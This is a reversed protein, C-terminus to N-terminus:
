LILYELMIKLAIIIMVGRIAIEELEHIKRHIINSILDIANMMVIRIFFVLEDLSVEIFYKKIWDDAEQMRRSLNKDLSILIMLILIVNIVGESIIIIARAMLIAAAGNWVHSGGRDLLIDHFLRLIKNVHCFIVGNIISIFFLMHFIMKIKLSDDINIPTIEWNLMDDVFNIIAKDEMLCRPHIRIARDDFM